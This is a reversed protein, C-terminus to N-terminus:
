NETRQAANQTLVINENSGNFAVSTLEASDTGRNSRIEFGRAKKERKEVRAQSKAIAKNGKLITLESTKEDFSVAYTGKKVLTGNVNIDQIFTVTEKKSKAFAMVGTMVTILLVAAIRNVRSTM